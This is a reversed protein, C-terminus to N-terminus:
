SASTNNVNIEYIMPPLSNNQQSSVYLINPSLLNNYLMGGIGNLNSSAYFNYIELNSLLLFRITTKYNMEEAFYLKNEYYALGYIPDYSNYIQTIEQNSPNIRTIYYNSNDMFKTNMYLFVGNNTLFSNEINKKGNLTIIIVDNFTYNNLNVSEVLYSNSNINTWYLNNNIITMQYPNIYYSGNSSSNYSIFNYIAASPNNLPYKSIVGYQQLYSTQSIATSIYLNNSSDIAVGIPNFTLPTSFSSADSWHINESTLYEINGSPYIIQISGSSYNSINSSIAVYINGNTDMAIGYPNNLSPIFSSLSEYYYTQSIKEAANKYQAPIIFKSNYPWKDSSNNMHYRSRPFYLPEQKYCLIDTDGGFPVDSMEVSFCLDNQYSTIIEGSCQNEVQNCILIGSDIITNDIIEIIANVFPLSNGSPTLTPIPPIAPTTTPLVIPLQDYINHDPFCNKVPPYLAPLGTTKDIYKGNLRRLSNINPNTYTDTQTAYTKNQTIWKGKAILSYTQKKTLCSSNKKYQLINGKYQMKVAM